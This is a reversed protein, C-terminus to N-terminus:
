KGGKSTVGFLMALRVRRVLGRERELELSDFSYHWDRELEVISWRGGADPGDVGLTGTSTVRQVFVRAACTHIPPKQGGRFVSRHQAAGGAHERACECFYAHSEHCTAGVNDPEGESVVPEDLVHGPSAEDGGEGGNM